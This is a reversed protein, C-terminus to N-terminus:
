ELNLSLSIYDIIASQNYVTRKEDGNRKVRVVPCFTEDDFGAILIDRAKAETESTWNLGSKRISNKLLKSLLKNDNGSRASSFAILLKDFNNNYIEEGQRKLDTLRWGLTLSLTYGDLFAGGATPVLVAGAGTGVVAVGVNIENRIDRKRSATKYSGRCDAFVSSITSFIM